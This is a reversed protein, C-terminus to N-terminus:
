NNLINEYRKRLFEDLKEYRKSDWHRKGSKTHYGNPFDIKLEEIKEELQERKHEAIFDIAEERTIWDTLWGDAVTTWLRYLNKSKNHQVNWAM